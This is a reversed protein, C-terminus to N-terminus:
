LPSHTHTYTHFHILSSYSLNKKILPSPM